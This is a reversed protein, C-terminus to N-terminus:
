PPPEPPCELPFPCVLSRIPSPPPSPASHRWSLRAKNQELLQGVQAGTYWWWQQDAPAMIVAFKLTGDVDMYPSIDTLRAKNQELLQGVQAGTYDWYWWWEQDAPAM